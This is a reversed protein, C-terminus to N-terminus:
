LSTVTQKLLLAKEDASVLSIDKLPLSENTMEQLVFSLHGLMRRMSRSCFCSSDFSLKIFLENGPVVVVTLPYNNREESHIDHISLDGIVPPVAEGMPYNEFVLITEFLEEGKPTGSWTHVDSLASYEFEQTELYQMQLQTLWEGVKMDPPILVRLPITNIFLGIMTEVGTLEHPRVAVTIGFVAEENGDYRSLTIAWAGQLLTNVTINLRRTLVLLTETEKKNLSLTEELYGRESMSPKQLFLRGSAEVDSLTKRWFSEADTTNRNKLWTVYSSFPHTPQLVAERGEHKAQYLTFFEKMLLPLSWGDLLLHHHCWVFQHSEDSLRITVVRMLPARNLVFGQKQEDSLCEALKEKQEDPSIGRWDHQNWPMVAERNVVQVPERQGKWVFSTRLITHREVLTQWASFFADENFKGDLRCTMQEFYVSSEPDRLCHFLMGKQLPTLPYIDEIKKKTSMYITFYCYNYVRKYYHLFCFYNKLLKTYLSANYCKCRLFWYL